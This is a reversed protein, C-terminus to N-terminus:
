EEVNAENDDVNENLKRRKARLEAIYLKVKEQLIIKKEPSPLMKFFDDENQKEVLLKQQVMYQNLADGTKDLFNAANKYFLAEDKKVTEEMSNTSVDSIPADKMGELALKILSADQIAKKAMKNGIPRDINKKIAKIAKICFLTLKIM